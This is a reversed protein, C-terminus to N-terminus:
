PTLIALFNILHFNHADANVHPGPRHYSLAALTIYGFTTVHLYYHVHAHLQVPVQHRRSSGTKSPREHNFITMECAAQLGVRSNLLFDKDAVPSDYCPLIYRAFLGTSLHWM